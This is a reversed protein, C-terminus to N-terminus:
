SARIGLHILIASDVDKMIIDDLTGIYSDIRSRDITRIQDAKIRSDKTLNATGKKITVQFPYNKGTVTSTLPLITVTGAFENNIDNSVIVAPRTKSVENGAVPDLNVYHIDGRKMM